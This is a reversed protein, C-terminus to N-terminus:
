RAAPVRSRFRRAPGGAPAIGGGAAAAGTAHKLRQGMNKCQARAVVQLGIRTSFDRMIACPNRASPALRWWLLRARPGGSDASPRPYKRSVGTCSRGPVPQFGAPRAPYRARGRARGSEISRDPRLPGPWTGPSVLYRAPGSLSGTRIGPRYPYWVPGSVPGPRTGLWVLYRAPGLRWASRASRKPALAACRPLSCRGCLLPVARPLMPPESRRAAGVRAALRPLRLNSGFGPGGSLQFGAGGSAAQVDRPGVTSRRAAEAPLRSPARLAAGPPSNLSDTTQDLSPAARLVKHASRARRATCAAPRSPARPAPVHVLLYLPACRRARPAGHVRRLRRTSIHLRAAGPRLYAPKCAGSARM